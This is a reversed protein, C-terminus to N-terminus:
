IRGSSAACSLRAGVRIQRDDGRYAGLRARLAQRCIIGVSGNSHKDAVFGEIESLSLKDGSDAMAQTLDAIEHPDMGQFFVAMCFAAMQYDPIKGATYEHVLFYIEERSLREGERKKRILDVAKM